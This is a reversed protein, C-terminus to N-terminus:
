DPSYKSVEHGMQQDIKVNSFISLLNFSSCIILFPNFSLTSKTYLIKAAIFFCFTQHFRFYEYDWGSLIRFMFISCMTTSLLLQTYLVSIVLSQQQSLGVFSNSLLFSMYFKTPRNRDAERSGEKRGQGAPRAAFNGGCQVVENIRASRPPSPPSSVFFELLFNKKPSVKFNSEAGHSQHTGHYITM